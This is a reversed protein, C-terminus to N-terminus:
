LESTSMNVFSCTPPSTVVLLHASAHQQGDRCVYLGADDARVRRVSLDLRGSDTAETEFRDGNTESTRRGGRFLVTRGDVAFRTWSVNRRDQDSSCRIIVDNGAAVAVNLPRIILNALSPRPIFETTFTLLLM